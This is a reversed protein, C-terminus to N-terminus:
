LFNEVKKEEHDVILKFNYGSNVYADRKDKMDQPDLTYSSKIEVILNQEPIYFDPVAVHTQHDQTKVYPIRLSEVEYYVKQSDLLKAYDLEFSSRLFVDRGDWTTHYGSHYRNHIERPTNRGTIYALRSAESFTRKSIGLFPFTRRLLSAISSEYGLSKRIEEGSMGDEWYMKHIKDKLTDWTKFVEPTGIKSMDLNFNKFISKVQRITHEHCFKCDSSRIRGCIPCKKISKCDPCVKAGSRSKVEFEKGCHECKVIKTKGTCQKSSYSRACKNCCFRDHFKDQPTFEKGCNECVKKFM